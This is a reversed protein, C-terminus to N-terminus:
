LCETPIFYILDEHHSVYWGETLFTCPAPPREAYHEVVRFEGAFYKSLFEFPFLIRMDPEGEGGWTRNYDEARKWFIGPRCILRPLPSDSSAQLPGLAKYYVGDAQWARVNHMERPIGVFDALATALAFHKLKFISFRKYKRM